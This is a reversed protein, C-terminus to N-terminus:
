SQSGLWLQGRDRAKYGQGLMCGRLTESDGEDMPCTLSSTNQYGLWVWYLNRQSKKHCVKECDVWLVFWGTGLRKDTDHHGDKLHSFQSELFSTAEWLYVTGPRVFDPLSEVNAM